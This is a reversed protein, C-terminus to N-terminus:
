WTVDKINKLYDQYFAQQFGMQRIYELWDYIQHEDYKENSDKSLEKRLAIAMIAYENELLTDFVGQDDTNISVSMQPTKIRDNGQLEIGKNFFNIIPHKDYRRFTGIVKNSSPNCEIGLQKKMLDKQMALQLQKIPEIIIKPIKVEVIQDGKEKVQQNFHYQYYLECAEVNTRMLKVDENNNSFSFEEWVSSGVYNPIEKYDMTSYLSPADGRLYYSCLYNYKIEAVSNYGSTNQNYIEQLYKNINTDFFENLAPPIQINHKNLQNQIWLTNDLVDQKKLVIRWCKLEYYAQPDVGLALAHGIRDGRNLELLRVSEEVSRMGDILDLFDEGAHFTFKLPTEIKDNYKNYGFTALHKLYRYAQAFVEPRSSMESSAADIGIIRKSTTYGNNRLNFIAESQKQVTNRLTHNRCTLNNHKKDKEPTKIFHIIYYYQFSEIEQKEFKDNNIFIDTDHFILDDLEEITEHLDKASNKPAIRAELYKINQFRMTENIAMNILLKYHISKGPIFTTKRDQYKSFNDFGYRNNVQIIEKRFRSKIIIYAHFLNAIAPSLEENNFILKFVNYILWREGCLAIEALSDIEDSLTISTGALAYDIKVASDLSHNLLKISNIESQIEPLRTLIEEVETTKIIKYIADSTKKSDYLSDNERDHHIITHFLLLRIASAYAVLQHMTTTKSSESAILDAFRKQSIEKFDDGRKEVQNMLSLWSLDYNFSSGKLHFHLETLGRRFIHRLKENDSEIIPSWDFDQRRNSGQVSDKNALFACIFLNEGLHQTVERWRLLNEFCCVAKGQKELLVDNAFKVIINFISDNGSSNVGWEDNLLSKISTIEDYTHGDNLLEYINSFDSTATEIQDKIPMVDKSILSIPDSDRFLVLLSNRINDM